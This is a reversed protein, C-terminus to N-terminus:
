LGFYIVRRTYMGHEFLWLLEYSGAGDSNTATIYLRDNKRDYNVTTMRINPNYLGRIASDPVPINRNGYQVQLSGYQRTPLGGDSGYYPQHNIKDVYRVNDHTTYQVTNDKLVFPKATLMVRISDKQFVARNDTQEKVTIQEFADIVKVRSRHIFGGSIEGEHYYDINYWEGEPELLYVIDGDLVKGIVTQSVGANKRINTYGDKDQVLAMQACVQQAWLMLILGSIYKM